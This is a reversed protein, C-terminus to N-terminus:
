RFGLRWRMIATMFRVLRLQRRWRSPEQWLRFLWEGGVARLWGPARQRDGVLVDFAGGCVMVIKVGAQTLVERHREVWWEQTPAGFAVFVVVPKWSTLISVVEQDEQQTRESLEGSVWESADTYGATGRCWKQEPQDNPDVNWALRAAATGQSGILLTRVSADATQSATSLWWAVTDIGTIRESLRTKGSNSASSIREAWLLGAGDPILHDAHLLADQYASDEAAQVVQEPNPTYVVALRRATLQQLWWQYFASRGGAFLQANIRDWTTAITNM